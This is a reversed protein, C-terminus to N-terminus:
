QARDVRRVTGVVSVQRELDYWPFLLSAAGSAALETGKRSTYNTFFVFGEADVGKLLVTRASPVGGAGLTGLVMANPETLGADAAEGLWREFQAYPDAALDAEALGGAAYSRRLEALRVPDM